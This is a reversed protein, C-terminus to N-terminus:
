APGHEQAPLHRHHHRGAVLRAPDLLGQRRHWGEDVADHDDVVAAHVVRGRPHLAEARRAHLQKALCRAAPHPRGDVAAVRVGSREAGEGDGDHGTVALHVGVVQRRHQAWHQLALRVVHLAIAEGV